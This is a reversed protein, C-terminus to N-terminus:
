TFLGEINVPQRRGVSSDGAFFVLELNVKRREDTLWIELMGEANYHM